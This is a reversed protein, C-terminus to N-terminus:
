DEELVMDITNKQHFNNNPLFTIAPIFNNSLSHHQTIIISLKTKISHSIYSFTM